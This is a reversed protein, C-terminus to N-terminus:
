PCPIVDFYDSYCVMNVFLVLHEKFELSEVQLARLPFLLLSFPVLLFLRLSLFCFRVHSRRAHDLELLDSQIMQDM